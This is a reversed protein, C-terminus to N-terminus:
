KMFGDNDFNEAVWYEKMDQIAQAVWNKGDETLKQLKHDM